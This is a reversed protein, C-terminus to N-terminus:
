SYEGCATLVHMSCLFLSLFRFRFFPTISSVATRAGEGPSCVVYRLRAAGALIGTRSENGLARRGTLPVEGDEHTRDNGTIEPEQGAAKKRRAM